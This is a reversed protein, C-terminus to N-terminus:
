LECVTIKVKVVRPMKWGHPERKLDPRNRWSAYREELYERAQSRTRFVIPLGRIPEHDLFERYGDLRCQSRKQIAWKHYVEKSMQVGAPM